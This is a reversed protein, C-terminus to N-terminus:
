KAHHSEYRNMELLFRDYRQRFDGTKQVISTTYCPYRDANRPSNIKLQGDLEVGKGSLIRGGALFKFFPKVFGGRHQLICLDVSNPRM